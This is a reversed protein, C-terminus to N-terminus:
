PQPLVGWDHLAEMLGPSTALAALEAPTVWRADRADDGATPTRDGTPEALFDRIAYTGGGPADRHVTGVERLVRVAIGTEEAVERVVAQEHTEGPEVRGGPLSWCGMAPEKGRLIVLLRGTADQVVAGVAPIEM